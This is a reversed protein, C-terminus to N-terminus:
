KRLLECGKIGRVIARALKMQFDNDYAGKIEDKNFGVEILIAPALTKKLIFYDPEKQKLVIDEVRNKHEVWNLTKLGTIFNDIITDSKEDHISTYLTVGNSSKDNFIETHLSVIYPYRQFHNKYSINARSSRDLVSVNNSEPILDVFPIDEDGLISILHLKLMRTFEWEYFMNGNVMSKRKGPVDYGHGNDIIVMRRAM